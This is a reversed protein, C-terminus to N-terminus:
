LKRGELLILKGEAVDIEDDLQGDPLAEAGTVDPKSSVEVREVKPM